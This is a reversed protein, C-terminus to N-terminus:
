ISILSTVEGSSEEIKRLDPAVFCYPIFRHYRVPAHVFHFILRRRYETPSLGTLRRFRDSFTGLSQFGVALCIESISLDNEALLRKALDIRQRTLFEHPTEGYLKAFTRHFHFPSLFAEDALTALKLPREPTDAIRDRVRDLRQILERDM